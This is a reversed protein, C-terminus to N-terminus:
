RGAGPPEDGHLFHPGVGQGPARACRPHDNQRPGARRAIAVLPLEDILKPIEAGGVKTGKLEGGTITVDGYPEAEDAASKVVVNVRAGM